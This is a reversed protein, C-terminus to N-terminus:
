PQWPFYCFPMKAVSAHHEHLQPFLWSPRPPTMSPPSSPAHLPFHPLARLNVRALLHEVKFLDSEERPRLKGGWQWIWSCETTRGSCQGVLGSGNKLASMGATLCADLQLVLFLNFWAHVKNFAIPLLFSISGLTNGHEMKVGWIIWTQILQKQKVWWSGFTYGGTFAWTCEWGGSHRDWNYGPVRLMGRCSASSAFQPQPHRPLM